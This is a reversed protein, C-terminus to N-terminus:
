YIIGSEKLEKRAKRTKDLRANKVNTQYHKECVKYKGKVPNDCFYCLGQKYRDKRDPKGYKISKYDRSKERCISCTKCGSDAQRKRCRTCIGKKIMEQHTRKSWERHIKNYHLRGEETARAQMIHEYAYANCEPCVKEDGYLKVKQCRPCIGINQMFHRTESTEDTINKRCEICYIGDRDLPKGCNRCLGQEKRKSILRQQYISTAM